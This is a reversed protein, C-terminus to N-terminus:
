YSRMAKAQRHRLARPLMPLPQWARVVVPWDDASENSQRQYTITWRNLAPWYAVIDISVEDDEDVAGLVLIPYHPLQGPRPKPPDAADMWGDTSHHATSVDRHASAEPASHNERKNM